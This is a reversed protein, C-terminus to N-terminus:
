YNHWVPKTAGLCTSDEQFLFSGMNGAKAPNKDVAGGTFDEGITLLRWFSTNAV